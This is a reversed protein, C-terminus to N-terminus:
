EGMPCSRVSSYIALLAWKCSLPALKARPAFLTDSISETVRERASRTEDCIIICDFPIPHWKVHLCYGLHLLEIFIRTSFMGAFIRSSYAKRNKTADKKSTVVELAYIVHWAKRYRSECEEQFIRLMAKVESTQQAISFPYCVPLNVRANWAGGKWSFLCISGSTRPPLLLDLSCKQGM